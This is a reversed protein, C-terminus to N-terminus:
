IAMGAVTRRMRKRREQTGSRPKVNSAAHGLKDLQWTRENSDGHTCLLPDGFGERAHNQAPAQGRRQSFRPSSFSLSPPHIIPPRPSSLALTRSPICPFSQLPSSLLCRQPGVFYPASPSFILVAARSRPAPCPPPPCALPFPANISPRYPLPPPCPPPPLYHCPPCHPFASQATDGAM